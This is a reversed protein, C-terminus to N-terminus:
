VTLSAPEHCASAADACMVRSLTWPQGADVCTGERTIVQPTHKHSRSIDCRAPQTPKAPAPAPQLGQAKACLSARSKGAARLWVPARLQCRCMSSADDVWGPQCQLVAAAWPRFCGPMRRKPALNAAPCGLHAYCLQLIFTLSIARHWRVPRSAASRATSALAALAARGSQILPGAALPDPLAWSRWRHPRSQLWSVDGLGQAKEGIQRLEVDAMQLHLGQMSCNARIM